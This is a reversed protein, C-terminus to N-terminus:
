IKRFTLMYGFTLATEKRCKQSLLKIFPGVFIFMGLFMLKLLKSDINEYSRKMEQFVFTFSNGNPTCKVIELGCKEAFYKYYDKSFGSYFFYPQMHPLCAYPATLILTGEPKLLRSFEEFTENPYPIHEIVETCLIADFASDKEDVKWIDGQYDLKGYGWAEKSQLGEGNGEGDYQGFDQSKYTLHECFKRYPQPGCGADLITGSDLASLEKEIWRDRVKEPNEIAWFIQKIKLLIRM